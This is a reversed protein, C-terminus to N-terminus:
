EALTLQPEDADERTGLRKEPVLLAAVFALVLFPVATLFVDHLAKTWADIVVIKAEPPLARIATVNNALNSENGGSPAAGGALSLYHTLRSNLVAGFLAVGIAGGLSRFFTVGSTAAGLDRRDVDNQVATVVIQMSLGLGAGLVFVFLGVTWYPTDTTLTSLLLLAGAGVVVAARPPRKPRLSRLPFCAAADGTEM